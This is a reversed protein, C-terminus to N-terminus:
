PRAFYILSVVFCIFFAVGVLTLAFFVEYCIGLVINPLNKLRSM